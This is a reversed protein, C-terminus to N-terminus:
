VWEVVGAKQRLAALKKKEVVEHTVWFHETRHEPCCYVQHKRKPTFESQCLLCYRSDLLKPM